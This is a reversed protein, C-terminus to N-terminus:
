PLLELIGATRGPLDGGAGLVGLPDAVRATADLGFAARWEAAPVAEGDRQALALMVRGEGEVRFGAFGARAAIHASTRRGFAFVRWNERRLGVLAHTFNQFALEDPSPDLPLCRRNDPDQGGELAYETGYYVCPAG